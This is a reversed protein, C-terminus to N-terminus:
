VSGISLDTAVRWPTRMMMVSPERMTNRRDPVPVSPAVHEPAHAASSNQEPEFVESM